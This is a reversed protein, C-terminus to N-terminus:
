LVKTPPVASTVCDIGCNSAFHKNVSFLNSMAQMSEMFGKTSSVRCETPVQGLAARNTYQFFHQTNIQSLATVQRFIPAYKPERRQLAPRAMIKCAIINLLNESAQLTLCNVLIEIVQLFLWGAKQLQTQM